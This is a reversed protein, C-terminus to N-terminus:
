AHKTETTELNAPLQLVQHGLEPLIGFTHHQHQLLSGRAGRPEGWGGEFVHAPFGWHRLYLNTGPLEM